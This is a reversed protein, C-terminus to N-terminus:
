RNRLIAQGCVLITFRTRYSWCLPGIVTRPYPVVSCPTMSMPGAGNLFSRISYRRSPRSSAMTSMGTRTRDIPFSYCSSRSPVSANRTVHWKAARRKVRLAFIFRQEVLDQAAPLDKGRIRETSEVYDTLGSLQVGVYALEQSTDFGGNELSLTHEATKVEESTSTWNELIREKLFFSAVVIVSGLISFLREHRKFFTTQAAAGEKKPNPKSM